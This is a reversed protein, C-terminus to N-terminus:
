YKRSLAFALRPLTVSSSCKTQAAPVAALLAFKPLVVNQQIERPFGQPTQTRPDQKGAPTHGAAAAFGLLCCWHIQPTSRQAQKWYRCTVAGPGRCWCSGKATEGPGCNTKSLASCISVDARKASCHQACDACRLHHPQASGQHPPWCPDWVTSCVSLTLVPVCPCPM